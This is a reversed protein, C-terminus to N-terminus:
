SHSLIADLDAKFQSYDRYWIGQMGLQTAAKIHKELDDIYVVENAKVELKELAYQFIMPDPKIIGLRSSVTVDDFLNILHSDKLLPDIFDHHANTLLGIKYTKHLEHILGVVLPNIQEAAYMKEVQAVSTNTSESVKEIFEQWRIKGLNVANAFNSFTSEDTNKDQKVYRWYDDSSIVGFYDFIIAKIM